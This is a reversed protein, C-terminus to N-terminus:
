AVAGGIPTAGLRIASGKGTGPARETGKNWAGGPGWRRCIQRVDTPLRLESKEARTAGIGRAGRMGGGPDGGAGAADERARSLRRSSM